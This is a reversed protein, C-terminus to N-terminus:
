SIEGVQACRASLERGKVAKANQMTSTSAPMKLWADRSSTSLFSEGIGAATCPPRIPALTCCADDTNERVANARAGEAPAPAAGAGARGKLFTLDLM